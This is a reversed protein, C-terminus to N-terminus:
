VTKATLLQDLKARLSKYTALNLELQRDLEQQAQMLQPLRNARDRYASATYVAANIKQELTDRQADANLYDEVVAKQWASKQLSLLNKGIIKTGLLTQIKGIRYKTAALQASYDTIEQNLRNITNVSNVAETALNVVQHKARFDKIRTESAKLKTEVDTLQKELAVRLAKPEKLQSELEGIRLQDLKTHLSKYTTLNVERRRTLEGQTQELQPLRNARDRYATAVYVLANIRQELAVRQFDAKIYDTVLKEPLGSKQLDVLSRDIVNAGLINQMKTIRSKEAALEASTNTIEQNISNIIKVSSEAETALDVVQYKERFDRIKSENKRIISELEVVQKEILTREKASNQSQPLKQSITVPAISPVDQGSVTDIGIVGATIWLLCTIPFFRKLSVQFLATSIM